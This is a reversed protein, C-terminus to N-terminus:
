FGVFCLVYVWVHANVEGLYFVVVEILGFGRVYGLVVGFYWVKFYFGFCLSLPVFCFFIVFDFSVVYFFVGEVIFVRWM